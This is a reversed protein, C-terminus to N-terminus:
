RSTAGFTCALRSKVVATRSGIPTIMRNALRPPAASSVLRIAARKDRNRQSLSLMRSRDLLRDPSDQIGDLLNRECQKAQLWNSNCRAGALGNLPNEHLEVPERPPWDHDSSAWLEDEDVQSLDALPPQPWDSDDCYSLSSLEGSLCCQQCYGSIPGGGGGASPEPQNSHGGLALLTRARHESDVGLELDLQEQELELEAEFEDLEDSSCFELRLGRDTDLVLTQSGDQEVLLDLKREKQRSLHLRHGLERLYNLKPAVLRTQHSALSSQPQYNLVILWCVFWTCTFILVLFLLM